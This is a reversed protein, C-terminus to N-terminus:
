KYFREIMIAANHGGFGYSASIATDIKYDRAEETINLDKIITGCSNAHVKNHCIADACM